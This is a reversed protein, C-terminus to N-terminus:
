KKPSISSYNVKLLLRQALRGGQRKTEKGGTAEAEGTEQNVWRDLIGL